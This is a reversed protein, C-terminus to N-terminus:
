DEASESKGKKFHEVAQDYMELLGNVNNHHVTVREARILELVLQFAAKEPYSTPKILESM